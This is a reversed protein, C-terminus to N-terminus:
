SMKYICVCVCMGHPFKVEPGFRKGVESLVKMVNKLSRQNGRKKKSDLMTLNISSVRSLHPMSSVNALRRQSTEQFIFTHDCLFYCLRV